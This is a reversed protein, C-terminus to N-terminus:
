LSHGKAEQYNCARGIDVCNVEILGFVMEAGSFEDQGLMMSVTVEAM